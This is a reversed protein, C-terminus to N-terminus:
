GFHIQAGKVKVLRDGNALVNEAQLHLLDSARHDIVKADLLDLGDVTRHHQRAHHSEQDFVTALTNGALRLQGITAQCWEGISQLSRYVLSASGTRVALEQTTVSLKGASLEADAALAVRMPASAVRELVALVHVADGGRDGSVCRWCAVRDGAVPEVLCSYARRARYSQLGCSLHLTGDADVTDVTAVFNVALANAGVADTLEPDHLSLHDPAGM